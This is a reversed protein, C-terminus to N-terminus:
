SFVANSWKGSFWFLLKDGLGIGGRLNENINFPIWIKIDYSSLLDFIKQRGEGQVKDREDLIQVGSIKNLEKFNGSEVMQSLADISNKVMSRQTFAEIKGRGMDALLIFGSSAGLTGIIMMLLNKMIESPGRLFGVEQSLDYLTKLHFIRRELEQQSRELERLPGRFLKDSEDKM